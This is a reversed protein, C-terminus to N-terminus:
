LLVTADSAATGGEGWNQDNLPEHFVGSLRWELYCHVVPLIIPRIGEAETRNEPSRLRGDSTQIM